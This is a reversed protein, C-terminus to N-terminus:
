KLAKSLAKLETIFERPQYKAIADLTKKEEQDSLEQLKNSRKVVADNFPENAVSSQVVSLFDNKILKKFDAESIEKGEALMALHAKFDEFGKNFNATPTAQDPKSAEWIIERMIELRKPRNFYPELNLSKTLRDLAKDADGALKLEACAVRLISAVERATEYDALVKGDAAGYLECLKKVTDSVKEKTFEVTSLDKILADCWAILQASSTTLKAPDGFPRANTAEVLKDLQKRLDELGTKDKGSYIIAASLGGLPWLRVVPRGPIVRASVTGPVHYGFGRSQRYGPYRLDHHCAYCDSHAMALEPWRESAKDGLAPNSDIEPWFSKPKSFDARDHALKLTERVAVVSGILSTRTQQFDMYQLDYNKKIAPNDKNKVLWPVNRANRWHQPENRSFTALEIPPLPPHGAAMMAHTVVKGESANGIHCSTCLEARVAPDRVNRMGKQFKVEPSNERWRPQIHDGYWGGGGGKQTCPGHCGACSVGDKNDLAPAGKDKNIQSLNHMAHCSLCGNEPKLVAKEDGRFMVKGIQKGRDGMLVAYAQAHKDYARWISSETLLVFETSPSARGPPNIRGLIPATHCESCRGSQEYIQNKWAEVDPPQNLPQARAARQALFGIGAAVALALAGAAVLKAPLSLKPM